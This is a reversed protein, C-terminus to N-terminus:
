KALKSLIYGLPENAPPYTVVIGVLGGIIILLAGVTIFAFVGALFDDEMSMARQYVGIIGALFFMIACIFIFLTIHFQATYYRGLAEISIKAAPNITSLLQAIQQDM